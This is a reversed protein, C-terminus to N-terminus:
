TVRVVLSNTGNHNLVGKPLYYGRLENYYTTGEKVDERWQGHQAILKGNIYFRGNDTWVTIVEYLM